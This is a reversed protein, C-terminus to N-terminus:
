TSRSALGAATLSRGVVTASDHFRSLEEDDMPMDLVRSIGSANVVTPVSLAIGSVGRYDRLISSVPLIASEDNLVAEVIRVGSLGIAYNTAGKGAIVRQAAGRVETALANLEPRRFAGRGEPVWDRLPVPGIRAQSWVPFQSDGHEGLILAHVSSTSVGAKRALMWTLRSSDLVTGSSFIRNPPLGAFRQAAVTLVDSPNTVLIYVAEPAQEVLAPMLTELMRVNVEALDSRSQGPRQKAGATVVVVDADAIVDLHSGGTIRSSGTFRAGHALDLVEAEVRAADIDYLAVERSSERILAAYAISCGVAGAGIVALKSHTKM